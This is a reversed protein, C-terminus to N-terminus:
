TTIHTEQYSRLHQIPPPEMALSAQVYAAILPHDGQGSHLAEGGETHQPHVNILAEDLCSAPTHLGQSHVQIHKTSVHQTLLPCFCHKRM